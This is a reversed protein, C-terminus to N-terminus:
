SLFKTYEPRYVAVQGGKTIFPSFMQPGEFLEPADKSLVPLRPWEPSILEFDAEKGDGSSLKLLQLLKEPPVPDM